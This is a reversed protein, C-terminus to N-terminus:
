LRPGLRLSLWVTPNPFLGSGTCWSGRRVFKHSVTDTVASAQALRRGPLFDTECFAFHAVKLQYVKGKVVLVLIQLISLATDPLSDNATVPLDWLQDDM